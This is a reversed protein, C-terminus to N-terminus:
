IVSEPTCFMLLSRFYGSLYKRKESGIIITGGQLAPPQNRAADVFILTLAIYGVLVLVGMGLTM